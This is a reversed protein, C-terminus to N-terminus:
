GKPSSQADSKGGLQLMETEQAPNDAEPVFECRGLAGMQCNYGRRRLAAECLSWKRATGNQRFTSPFGSEQGIM